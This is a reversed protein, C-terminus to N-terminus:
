DEVKILIRQHDYNGKERKEQRKIYTPTSLFTLSSEKIGAKEAIERITGHYLLVDGRYLAYYSQTM